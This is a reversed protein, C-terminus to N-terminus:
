AAFRGFQAKFAIGAAAVAADSIRRFNERSLDLSERAFRMQVALAETASGATALTRMHELATHAQQRAAEVFAQQLAALAAARDSVTKETAAPFGIFTAAALAEKPPVSKVRVPTAIAEFRAPSPLSTVKAKPPAQKAVARASVKAAPKAASRSAAKAVVKATAAVKPTKM